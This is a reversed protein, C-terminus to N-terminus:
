AAREREAHARARELAAAFRRLIGPTTLEERHANALADASLAAQRAPDALLATLVDAWAQPNADDTVILGGEGVMEPVGGRTSGLVPIGCLQAERIVRPGGEEVVSPVLLVSTRRYIERADAQQRWFTVNPLAGLQREVEALNAGLPWAEVVLFRVSPLHSALELFIEYGKVPRPNIFTVFRDEPSVGEEYHYDSESIAPYVVACTRGTAKEVREAIFRSVAALEVGLAAAQRLDAPEPRADHLYWLAGLGQARARRLLPLSRFCNCWVVEAAIEDVAEEFHAEADEVAWQPYGCDFRWGAPSLHVSRVGLAEFDALRPDYEPLQSGLGRRPSLSLCLSDPQESLHRLLSHITRHGGARALPYASCLDAHLVRM